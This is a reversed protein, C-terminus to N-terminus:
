SRLRPSTISPRIRRARRRRAPARAGARRFGRLRTRDDADIAILEADITGTFIRRACAAGPPAAPDHWFAVGRCTRPYPGQLKRLRQKPDFSWREAGTEADLAFVRNMGTCYYLTDGVM